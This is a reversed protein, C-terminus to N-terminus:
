RLRTRNEGGALGALKLHDLIKVLVCQSIEIVGANRFKTVLRSVTETTLGLFDAIDTRTMPLVFECPNEGNRQNRRSLAQLFSAFREEASRQGLTVILEQSAQLDYSLIELLKLGLRSDEGVARHLAKVPIPRLRTRSIAQANTLHEGVAGLGILDGPFAFDIVQRRGDQLMKYICVNGAEVKYVHGAPDGECFVHEKADFLQPPGDAWSPAPANAPQRKAAGAQPLAITIEPSISTTLM